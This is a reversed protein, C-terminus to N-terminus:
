ESPPPPPKATARGKGGGGGSTQTPAEAPRERLIHVQRPWLLIPAGVVLAGLADSAFWRLVAGPWWAGLHWAVTSGGILAGCLPGVVCAGAVFLLLDRRRRLDPVAGCGALALTAGILPEVANALAYGAVAGPANGAYLDVLFEALIIAAVVAPWRTRRTSIMAAATIGAAPFFAPGLESAGFAKLSVVAGAAYGLFVIVFLGITRFWPGATLRQAM